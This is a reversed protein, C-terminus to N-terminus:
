IVRPGEETSVLFAAAVGRKEPYRQLYARLIQQAAVDAERRATLAILCGGYGGGSFRSGFVGDTHSAIHHLEILPQSGCEYQEISSACSRDMLRGFSEWDGNAWVKGGATVRAVETFYHRARRRLPPPLAAEKNAFLSPSVDSLVTATPDLLRAAERCEAVRRNFGSGLLERSFGSYAILWCVDTVNPPDPVYTLQRTRTDLSVFADTRSYVISSQDLIGNNLGLYENEVQRVLEVLEAPSLEKGNVTALALLYALTVSASSSLGAGLLAGQVCGVLGYHLQTHQDLAAAAAQAYRSWDSRPDDGIQFSVSGEFNVSSLWVTRTSLPAFALVTHVAIARGMVTGGQHDVHAGLPCIRYPSVVVRMEDRPVGERAHLRQSVEDVEGLFEM